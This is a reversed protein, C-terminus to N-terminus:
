SLCLCMLDWLGLLVGVFAVSVNVCDFKLGYVNRLIVYFGWVCACILDGVLLGM